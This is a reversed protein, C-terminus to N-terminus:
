EEHYNLIKICGHLNKIYTEKDEGRYCYKNENLYEIVDQPAKSVFDLFEKNVSEYENDRCKRYVFIIDDTIDNNIIVIYRGFITNNERNYYESNYIINLIKSNLEIISAGGRRDSSQFIMASIQNFKTILTNNWYTQEHDVYCNTNLWGKYDWEFFHKCDEIKM